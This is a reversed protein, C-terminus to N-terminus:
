MPDPVYPNIEKKVINIAYEIDINHTLCYNSLLLMQDSFWSSYGDVSDPFIDNSGFMAIYGIFTYPNMRYFDAMKNQWMAYFTPDEEVDSPLFLDWQLVDMNAILPQLVVRIANSLSKYLNEQDIADAFEALYKHYLGACKWLAETHRLGTCNVFNRADSDPVSLYHLVNVSESIRMMQAYYEDYTIM